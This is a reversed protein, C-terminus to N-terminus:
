LNGPRRLGGPIRVNMNNLLKTLRMTMEVLHPHCHGVNTVLVGSTWDIFKNGDVDHLSAAKQVKGYWRRGSLSWMLKTNIGSMSLEKGKPGTCPRVSTVANNIEGSVTLVCTCGTRPALSLIHSYKRRIEQGAEESGLWYTADFSMILSSCHLNRHRRSSM